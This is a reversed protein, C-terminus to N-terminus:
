GHAQMFIHLSKKLIEVKEEEEKLQKERQRAERELEKVRLLLEAETRPTTPKIGKAEAYTPLKMERRYDRAWRCVTNKDIGLEEALRTASKDGEVIMKATQERMEASYKSNNSAM